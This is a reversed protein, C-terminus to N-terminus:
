RSGHEGKSKKRVPNWRPVESVRIICRQMESLIVIYGCSCAFVYIIHTTKVVTEHMPKADRQTTQLWRTVAPRQKSWSADIKLSQSIRSPMQSTYPSEIKMEEGSSTEPKKTSHVSPVAPERLEKRYRSHVVCIVDLDSSKPPQFNYLQLAHCM